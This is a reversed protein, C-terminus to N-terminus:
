HFLLTLLGCLGVLGFLLALWALNEDPPEPARRSMQLVRQRNQELVVFTALPAASM